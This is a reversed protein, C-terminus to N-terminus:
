CNIKVKKITLTNSDILDHYDQQTNDVVTVVNDKSVILTLDFCVDILDEQADVYVKPNAKLM